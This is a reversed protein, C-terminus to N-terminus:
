GEGRGNLESVNFLCFFFGEWFEWLARSGVNRHDVYCNEVECLLSCCLTDVFHLLYRFVNGREYTDRDSSSAPYLVLDQFSLM